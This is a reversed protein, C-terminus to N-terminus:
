PLVCPDQKAIRLSEEAAKLDAILSEFESRPITICTTRPDSNNRRRQLNTIVRQLMDECSERIKFVVQGEWLKDSKVISSMGSIKAQFRRESNKGIPKDPHAINRNLDFITIGVGEGDEIVQWYQTYRFVSEELTMGASVENKKESVVGEDDNGKRRKDNGGGSGGSGSAYQWAEEQKPNAVFGRNDRHWDARKKISDPAKKTPVHSDSAMPTLGPPANPPATRPIMPIMM